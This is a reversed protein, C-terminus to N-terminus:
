RKGRVVNKGRKGGIPRLTVLGKKNVTVVVYLVDKIWLRQGSKLMDPKVYKLINPVTELGKAETKETKKFLNKIQTIFQRM